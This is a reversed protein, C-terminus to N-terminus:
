KLKNYLYDYDNKMEDIVKDLAKRLKNNKLYLCKLIHDSM